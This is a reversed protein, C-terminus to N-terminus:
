DPGIPRDDPRVVLTGSLYAAKPGIYEESCADRLFDRDQRQWRSDFCTDSVKHNVEFMMSGSSGM